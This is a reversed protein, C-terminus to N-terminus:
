DGCNCAYYWKKKPSPLLSQIADQDDLMLPCDRLDILTLTEDLEAFEPPFATIKTSWLVLERLEKMGSMAAPLSQLPNRSLELRQLNRLLAISDNLQAIKNGRLDLQQLNVMLYVQSPIARLHQNHLQLIYVDEPNTVESLHKYVKDPQAFSAFCAMVAAAFIVWYRM